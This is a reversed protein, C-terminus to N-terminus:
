RVVGQAAEGIEGVGIGIVDHFNYSIEPRFRARTMFIKFLIELLFQAHQRVDM